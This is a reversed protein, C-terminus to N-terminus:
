SGTHMETCGLWQVKQQRDLCPPQGVPTKKLYPQPFKKSILYPSFGQKQIASHDLSAEFSHFISLRWCEILLNFPFFDDQSYHMLGACM